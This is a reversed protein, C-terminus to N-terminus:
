VADSGPEQLHPEFQINTHTIHFREDLLRNIRSLINRTEMLPVNKLAVHATLAYMKSTIQWIHVDHIDQVEPIEFIAGRVEGINVGKPVAELLIDVSERILGVSWILIVMAILVSVLPDLFTWNTYRIVVAALVVGVSSGTDGIMHLFAGRLNFDERSVDALILACVLNVVLGIVAVVFMQFVIVDEPHVLRLYAEYLIYGMIPLLTLGNFLASLIEIRWYGFTKDRSRMRTAIEISILSVALAGFHTLMHFADSLLALSNSLYGWVMEAIMMVFTLVIVLRLREKETVRHHSHQDPSGASHGKRSRKERPHHRHEFM